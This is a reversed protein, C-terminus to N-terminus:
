ILGEIVEVIVRDETIDKIYEEVFPILVKKKNDKAELIYGQPVILMDTVEGLYEGTTTYLKLGVLDEIFYEGEELDSKEHKTYIDCDVYELVDNINTKNNFTILDLGKHVRHSDIVIEIDKGEKRIYLINGKKFRNFDTESKVKVEGKIGHTGVIKGVLYM